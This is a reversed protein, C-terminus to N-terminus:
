KEKEHVKENMGDFARRREHREHGGSYRRVLVVVLGEGDKDDQVIHLM